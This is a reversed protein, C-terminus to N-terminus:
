YIAGKEKHKNGSTFVTQNKIMANPRIDVIELEPVDLNVSKGTQLSAYCCLFDTAQLCCLPLRNSGCKSTTYLKVRADQIKVNTIMASASYTFNESVTTQSESVTPQFEPFVLETLKLAIPPIM